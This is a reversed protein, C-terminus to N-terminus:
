KQVAPCRGLSPFGLPECRTDSSLTVDGVRPFTQLIYCSTVLFLILVTESLISVDAVPLRNRCFLGLASFLVFGLGPSFMTQRPKM